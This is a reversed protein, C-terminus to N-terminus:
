TGGKEEDRRSDVAKGYGRDIDEPHEAEVKTNRDNM